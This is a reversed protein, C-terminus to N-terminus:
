LSYAHLGFVVPARPSRRVRERGVMRYASRLGLPGRRFVSNITRHPTVLPLCPTARFSRKGIFAPLAGSLTNKQSPETLELSPCESVALGRLNM